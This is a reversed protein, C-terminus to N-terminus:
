KVKKARGNQCSRELRYAKILERERRIMDSDIFEYPIDYKLKIRARVIPNTLKLNNLKGLENQCSRCYGPTAKSRDDIIIISGCILCRSRLKESIRNKWWIMVKKLDFTGDNNCPCHKKNTWNYITIRTVDFIDAIEKQNLKKYVGTKQKQWWKTVEYLDFSGDANRPCDFRKCWSNIIEPSTDFIEAIQRTRLEHLIKIDYKRM